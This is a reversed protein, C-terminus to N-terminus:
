IALRSLVQCPQLILHGLCALWHQDLRAAPLGHRQDGGVFEGAPQLDGFFARCRKAVPSRASAPKPSISLKSSRRYRNPKSCRHGAEAALRHHVQVEKLIQFMADHKSMEKCARKRAQM